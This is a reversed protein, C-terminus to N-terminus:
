VILCIFKSSQIVKYDVKHDKIINECRTDTLFVHDIKKKILEESIAIAPFVHGGTGGALLVIKKKMNTEKEQNLIIYFWYNPLM